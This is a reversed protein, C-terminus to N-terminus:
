HMRQDWWHLIQAAPATAQLRQKYPSSAMAASSQISSDSGLAGSAPTYADTAGTGGPKQSYTPKQPIGVGIALSRTGAVKGTSNAFLGAGPQYTVGGIITPMMALAYLKSTGLSCSDANPKYTTWSIMGAFAEPDALVKEGSALPLVWGPSASSYVSDGISELQASTYTKSRENDKVAFFWDQTGQTTPNERDGTGWFVWLSSGDRTVSPSTYIPSASSSQFLKGGSWSSTRCSNGDAKTCFKFRWVNGGLDGIYATDIFGDNDSDVVAPPAPISSTMTGESEKTLSWLIDGNALDVVFFGRGRNPDGEKDYGGGIFGVWKEAGGILVRGMAMRSWPEGLYPAQLSTPNVRWKLKPTTASTETVDFAWYGCYHPYPDGKGDRYTGSFNQDCYQSTSWLYSSTTNTSNRVGRGESFVLLTMWDSSKKGTGDGSGLWVDAATVPGDVFYTHPPLAGSNSSHALSQLKPLLNPPIFSWLEEGTNGDFARFQGDNAGALVIRQRNQYKARFLPFADPSLLDTFFLSPGGVTIPNSHFTDGMKWGDPNYAPDGQIYGLVGKATATDVGLYDKWTGWGPGDPPPLFKTMAGNVYTLINRASPQKKSLLDGADWDANAAFSGDNNISYRKLSGKWFPDSSSPMFSSVFAHNQSQVRVSSVSPLSFSYNAPKQVREMSDFASDLGTTLEIGSQAVYAYGSLPATGPDEPSFKTFPDWGGHQCPYNFESPWKDFPPPFGYINGGYYTPPSPIAGTNGSNPLNPDDTQGFYAMWNLTNLLTSPMNAGFGIVYLKYGSSALYKANAISALRMPYMISPPQPDNGNGGCALTDQGDTILVVYTPVSKQSPNAAMFSDLYKKAEMLASSLPTSGYSWFERRDNVATYISSYSTGIPSILKICGSNYDGDTEEPPNCDTFRMFGINVGLSQEDKSDVVGDGNADLIKNIAERALVTKYPPGCGEGCCLVGCDMSGSKDLLILANAKGGSVGCPGSPSFVATEDGYGARPMLLFLCLSFAMWLSKKRSM